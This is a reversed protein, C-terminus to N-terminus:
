EQRVAFLGVSLPLPLNPTLGSSVMVAQALARGTPDNATRFPRGAYVQAHSLAAQALAPLDDRRLFRLLDELFPEVAGSQMTPAHGRSALEYSRIGSDLGGNLETL